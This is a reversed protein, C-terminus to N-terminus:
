VAVLQDVDVDVAPSEIEPVAVFLDYPNEDLLRRMEVDPIVMEWATNSRLKGRSKGIRGVALEFLDDEARTAGLRDVDRDLGRPAGGLSAFDYADQATVM